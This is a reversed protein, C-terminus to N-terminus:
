DLRRIRGWVENTDRKGGTEPIKLVVFIASLAALSTFIFFVWGQGGLANNLAANVIPFFQAVFFTALFNATLSWSQAAGVAPQDVLESALIFPVPGLGLAFFGVFSLVALAALIKAGFVMSFALALSSCGQGTISLLLCTRRGLRDPLPACALTTVLNVVSLVIALLASSIPLVDVLLAVSYMVISNIGCLQQAVMSGVAAIVGPRSHPDKIVELFGINAPESFRGPTSSLPSATDGHVLLSQEDARRAVNDDNNWASVEEQINFGNGRLDQLIQKAKPVDGHIALWTPSEPLALLTFAQVTAAFIGAALIWRWMSERSLFYGLIQTSLIGINISIQTVAGFLGRASPPSVESVYLPVIVTSAGAGLGVVLRGLSIITLNSAVTEVSSGTFYSLATWRMAALRGHKSSWPGAILAGVLGGLMFISSVSAFEADNM